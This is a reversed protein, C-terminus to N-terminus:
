PLSENAGGIRISRERQATRKNRGEKRRAFHMDKEDDCIWLDYANDDIM